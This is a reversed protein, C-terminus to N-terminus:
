RGLRSEAPAPEDSDGSECDQRQQCPSVEQGSGAHGHGHFPGAERQHRGHPPDHHDRHHHRASRGGDEEVCLNM